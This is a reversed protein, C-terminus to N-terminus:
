IANHKMRVILPIRYYIKSSIKNYWKTFIIVNISIIRTKSTYFQSATRITTLLRIILPPYNIFIPILNQLRNILIDPIEIILRQLISPNLRIFLNKFEM